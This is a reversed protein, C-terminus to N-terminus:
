ARPHAVKLARRIDDLNLPTYKATTSLREHLLLENVCRINAGNLFLMTAFTVRLSHATLCKDALEELDPNEDVTRQQLGQLFRGLYEGCIRDTRLGAFLWKAKHRRGLLLARAKQIYEKAVTLAWKACPLVRGPKGKEWEIRIESRKFDLDEVKLTVLTTRRRGTAIALCVLTLNRFEIAWYRTGEKQAQLKKAQTQILAIAEQQTLHDSVVQTRKVTPIKIGSALDVLLLGRRHLWEYYGKVASLRTGQTGRGLKKGAPSRYEDALWRQFAELDAHTAKLPDRSGLWATFNRLGHIYCAATSSRGERDLAKLYEGFTEHM